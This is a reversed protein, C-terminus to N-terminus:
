GTIDSESPIRLSTANRCAWFLCHDARGNNAHCAAPAISHQMTTNPSNGHWPMLAYKINYERDQKYEKKRGQKEGKRQANHHTGTSLYEV